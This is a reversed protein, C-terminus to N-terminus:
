CHENCSDVQCNIRRQGGGSAVIVDHVCELPDAAATGSSISVWMHMTIIITMMEMRTHKARVQVM